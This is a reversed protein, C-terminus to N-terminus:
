LGRTWDLVADVDHLVEAGVPAAPPDILIVRLGLALAADLKPRSPAGGLNRCLLTDIRRERFLATESAASFPADGFVLEVFPYPPARDHLQTQRLLLRAGPFAACDSLSAWGAASFVRADKAILPMAGRVNPVATWDSSESVSWLDRALAVFPLEAQTAAAFGTRTMQGDFGHSADVVADCGALHPALATADAFDILEFPVPMPNPGRPAESVLARVSLGRQTLAGAIRRAEASGALLLINKVQAM